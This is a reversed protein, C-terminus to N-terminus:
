ARRRENAHLREYINEIKPVIASSKYAEARAASAVGLRSRLMHDTLIEDLADRLENACGPSVLIGTEGDIVTDVLGGTRCAVVPKGFANAEMVVTGCTELGESPVIGALCRSWAHLVAAHPWSEFLFVNAPLDDPTDVCRRGILVLPIETDLERFAQLLTHVGKLRTLDGVFLLFPGQPLKECFDDYGHHLETIDDSVFTPIVEYPVGAEKLGCRAAVARSVPLCMSVRPLIRNTFARNALVTIPGKIGGYHDSACPLCKSLKPGCCPDGERMLSKKACVSGYDHLSLVLPRRDLVHLPLYSHVLWNHAHIIDPRETRIIEGLQLVLEPDPFPPVHRRQSESFLSGSRQLTGKMRHVNLAETCEVASASGSQTTAVTVRYGRAALAKGLVEVHREEGGIIPAYFQSLMLVRM